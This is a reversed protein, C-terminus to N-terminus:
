CDEAGALEPLTKIHLYAQKIFNEGDMNPSFAYGKKIAKGNDTFSVTAQASNKSAAVNEVKIYANLLVSKKGDPIPGYETMVNVVGELSITKRLAM